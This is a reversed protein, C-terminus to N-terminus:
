PHAHQMPSLINLVLSAQLIIEAQFLYQHEVMWFGPVTHISYAHLDTLVNNM